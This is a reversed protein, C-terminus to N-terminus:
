YSFFILITTLVTNHPNQSPEYPDPSSETLRSSLDGLEMFSPSIFHSTSSWAEVHPSRETYKRVYCTHTKFTIYKSSHLVIRCLRCSTSLKTCSQCAQKLCHVQLSVEKKCLIIQEEMMVNKISVYGHTHHIQLSRERFVPGRAMLRSYYCATICVLPFIIKNLPQQSHHPEWLPSQLSCQSSPHSTYVESLRYIEALGSPM